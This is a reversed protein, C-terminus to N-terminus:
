PVAAADVYSEDAKRLDEAMAKSFWTKLLRPPREPEKAKKVEKKSAQKVAVVPPNFVNAPVDLEKEQQGHKTTPTGLMEQVKAELGKDDLAHGDLTKMLSAAMQEATAHKARRYHKAISRQFAKGRSRKTGLDRDLKGRTTVVAASMADPHVKPAAVAKKPAAPAVPPPELLKLRLQQLEMRQKRRKVVKRHRENAIGQEVQQAYENEQELM